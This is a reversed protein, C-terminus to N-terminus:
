YIPRAPLATVRTSFHSFHLLPISFVAITSTNTPTAYRQAVPKIAATLPSSLEEKTSRSAHRLHSLKDSFSPYEHARYNYM